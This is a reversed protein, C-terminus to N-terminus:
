IKGHSNPLKQILLFCNNPLTILATVLSNNSHSYQLKFHNVCKLVPELLKERSMAALLKFPTMAENRILIGRDSDLSILISSSHRLACFWIELSKEM